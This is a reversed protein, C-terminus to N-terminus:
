AQFYTLIDHMKIIGHELSLYSKMAQDM